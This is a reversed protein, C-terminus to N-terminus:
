SSGTSEVIGTRKNNYSRQSSMLRLADLSDVEAVQREEFDADDAYREWIIRLTSANQDDAYFKPSNLETTPAMSM